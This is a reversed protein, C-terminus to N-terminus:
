PGEGSERARAVIVLDGRIEHAIRVVDEVAAANEITVVLARRPYRLRIHTDHDLHLREAVQDLQAVVTRHMESEFAPMDAM